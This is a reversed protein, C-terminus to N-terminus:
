NRCVKDKSEENGFDNVIINGVLNIPVNFTAKAEPENKKVTITPLDTDLNYIGVVVYTMDNQLTPVTILVKNPLLRCICEIINNM